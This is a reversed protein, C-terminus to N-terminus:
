PQSRPTALGLAPPSSPPDQRLMNATSSLTAAQIRATQHETPPLHTISATIKAAEEIMASAWIQQHRTEPSTRAATAAPRALAPALDATQEPERLRAEAEAALLNAAAPPLFVESQTPNDTVTERLLRRNQEASRNLANANGRLRLTMPLAIDDAMSLSLSGLAALGFAIIQAVAILDAHNSVRYANVTEAAAMRAMGADGATVCLFMPALLSIVLNILVGAPDPPAHSGTAETPPETSATPQTM